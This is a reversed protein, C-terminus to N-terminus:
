KNEIFITRNKSIIAIFIEMVKKDWTIASYIYLEEIQLIKQKIVQIIITM